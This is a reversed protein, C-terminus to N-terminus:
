AKPGMKELADGMVALTTPCVDPCNAFGFYILMFKGRYDTDRRQVGTQDILTFPGGVTATGIGTVQGPRGVQDGLYWLYGGLIVALALLCRVLAKPTRIMKARSVIGAESVPFHGIPAPRRFEPPGCSPGAHFATERWRRGADAPG